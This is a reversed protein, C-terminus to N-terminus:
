AGRLYILTSHPLVTLAVDTMGISQARQNGWHEHHDYMSVGVLLVRRKDNYRGISLWMLVYVLLVCFVSINGMNSICKNGKAFLYLM